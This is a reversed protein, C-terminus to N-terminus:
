WHADIVDKEHVSIFNKYPGDRYMCSTHNPDGSPNDRHAFGVAHGVEHCGIGQREATGMANLDPLDFRIEHRLCRASILSVQNCTTYGVYNRGSEPDWDLGCFTTYNNDYAILEAGSDDPLVGIVLDTPGYVEGKAWTMAYQSSAALDDYYWYWNNIEAQTIGGCGTQDSAGWFHDASAPRADSVTATTAVGIV